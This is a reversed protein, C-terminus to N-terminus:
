AHVSARHKPGARALSPNAHMYEIWRDIHWVSLFICQIFTHEKDVQSTEQGQVDWLWLQNNMHITAYFHSQSVTNIADGQLFMPSTTEGAWVGAGAAEGVGAWSWLTGAPHLWLQAIWHHSFLSAILQIYLLLSMIDAHFMSLQVCM